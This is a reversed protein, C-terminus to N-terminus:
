DSETPKVTGEDDNAAHLHERIRMLNTIDSPDDSRKSAIGALRESLGFPQDDLFVLKKNKWKGDRSAMGRAGYQHKANKWKPTAVIKRADLDVESVTLKMEPTGAIVIYGGPQLTPLDPYSFKITWSPEGSAVSTITGIIGHGSALEERQLERDGHTLYYKAKQDDAVRQHYRSAAVRTNYDTFPNPWYPEDGDDERLVRDGWSDSFRKKSFAILQQLGNNRQRKEARIIMISDRTLEWRRVLEPKLVKNVAIEASNQDKENKTRNANGWREVLPQVSNREFDPNLVTAVSANEADRAAALRADRTRGGQLWGLLYGLHAQRIPSSPFVFATQLAETATIVTQQGPRQHEIHLCNALNGLARLTEVDDRDWKTRAYALAIFHLMEVHTPGPLWIQRHSNVEWNSLSDTSHQPHRLHELIAPAFKLMMDAVNSRNRAEAVTLVTPTEGIRGFAVGWPRSEGGMRLFSIIMIDDDDGVHVNVVDGRPTPKGESWARIRRVTELGDSM